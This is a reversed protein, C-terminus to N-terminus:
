QSCFGWHLPLGRTWGHQLMCDYLKWDTQWLRNSLTWLIYIVFVNDNSNYSILYFHLHYFLSISCALTFTLTWHSGPFSSLSDALPQNLPHVVKFEIPPKTMQKTNVDLKNGGTYKNMQKIIRSEADTYYLNELFVSIGLVRSRVLFLFYHFMLLFLFLYLYTYTNPICCVWWLPQDIIHLANGNYDCSGIASEGQLGFQVWFLRKDQRDITLSQLQEAMKILITKGQGTLDSRQISPTM